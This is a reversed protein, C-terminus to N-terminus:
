PERAEEAACAYLRTTTRFLADMLRWLEDNLARKLTAFGALRTFFELRDAEDEPVTRHGASPRTKMELKSRM